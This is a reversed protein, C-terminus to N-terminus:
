AEALVVKKAEGAGAAQDTHLFFTLEGRGRWGLPVGEKTIGTPDDPYDYHLIPALPASSLFLLSLSFYFIFRGRFKRRRKM